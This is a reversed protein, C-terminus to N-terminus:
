EVSFSSTEKEEDKSIKKSYNGNTIVVTGSYDVDKNKDIFVVPFVWRRTPNIENEDLIIENGDKNM